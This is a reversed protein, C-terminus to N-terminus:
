RLFRQNFQPGSYQPGNNLLGTQPAIGIQPQGPPTIPQDYLNPQHPAVSNTGTFPQQSQFVRIAQNNEDSSLYGNPGFGNNQPPPAIEQGRIMPKNEPTALGFQQPGGFGQPGSINQITNAGQPGSSM